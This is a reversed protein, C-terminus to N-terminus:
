WRGEIEATAHDVAANLRALLQQVDGAVPEGSRLAFAVVDAHLRVLEVVRPGAGDREDALRLV